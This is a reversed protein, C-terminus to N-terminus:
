AARRVRSHDGLESAWGCPCPEINPADSDVFWARFGHAGIQRSPYVSNHVLAKGAPISRPVRRVYEMGHEAAMRQGREWAAAVAERLMVSSEATETLLANQVMVASDDTETLLANEYVDAMVALEDEIRM